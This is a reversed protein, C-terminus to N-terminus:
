KLKSKNGTFLKLAENLFANADAYFNVIRHISKLFHADSVLQMYWYLDHYMMELM